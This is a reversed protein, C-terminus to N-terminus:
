CQCSAFEVGNVWRQRKIIDQSEQCYAKRDNEMIRYQRQLRQYELEREAMGDIDGDSVDSRSSRPRPMTVTAGGPGLWRLYM